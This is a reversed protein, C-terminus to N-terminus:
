RPEALQDQDDLSLPAHLPIGALAVGQADATLRGEAFARVVAVLLPHERVLVRAALM